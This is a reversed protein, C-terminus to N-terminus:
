GLKDIQRDPRFKAGVDVHSEGKEKHVTMLMLDIGEDPVPLPM